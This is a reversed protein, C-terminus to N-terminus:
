SKPTLPTFYYVVTYTAPTTGVNKLSTTAHAAFFIVSGPGVTQHHGDWSAEITGEKIIIVEEHLHLRPPGSTEGPNLTTIHCHLKDLETTPGEFVFRRVGNTVTEPQMQTWDVITTPLKAPTPANPDSAKTMAPFLTTALSACLLMAPITTTKM